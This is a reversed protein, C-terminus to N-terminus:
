RLDLKGHHGIRGIVAEAVVGFQDSLLQAIANLHQVEVLGPVGICRKMLEKGPAVAHAGGTIFVARQHEGGM